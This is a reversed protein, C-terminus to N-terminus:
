IELQYYCITPRDTIRITNDDIKEFKIYAGNANELDPRYMVDFQKTELKKDILTLGDFCLDDMASFELKMHLDNKKLAEIIYQLTVKNISEFYDDYGELYYVNNSDDKKVLFYYGYKSDMCESTLLYHEREFVNKFREFIFDKGYLEFLKEDQDIKYSTWTRNVDVVYKYKSYTDTFEVNNEDITRVSREEFDDDDFNQNYNPYYEEHVFVVKEFGTLTCNLKFSCRGWMEVEFAIKINNEKLCDVICDLTQMDITKFYDGFGVLKYVNKYLEDEFNEKYIFYYYEEENMIDSTILIYEKNLVDKFNEDIFDKGFREYLTEIKDIKLKM